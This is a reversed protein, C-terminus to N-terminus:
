LWVRKKRVSSNICYNRHYSICDKLLNHESMIILDSIKNGTLTEIVEFNGNIFIGCNDLLKHHNPCLCLINGIEDPGFHPSGLAQIHAAESISGLPSNLLQGCVQCKQGYLQKVSKVISSNRVLNSISRSYKQRNSQETPDESGFKFKLALIAEDQINWNERDLLRSVHERFDKDLNRKLINIATERAELDRSLSIYGFLLELETFCIEDGLVKEYKDVIRRIEDVRNPLREALAHIARSPIKYGLHLLRDLIEEFNAFKAVPFERAISIIEEDRINKNLLYFESLVNKLESYERNKILYRCKLSLIWTSTNSTSGMKKLCESYLTFDNRDVAFKLIIYHHREDIIEPKKLVQEYIINARDVNGTEVADKLGEYFDIASFFYEMDVYESFKETYFNEITSLSNFYRLISYDIKRNNFILYLEIFDLIEEQTNWLRKRIFGKGSFYDRFLGGQYTFSKSSKFNDRSQQILTSLEDIVFKKQLKKAKLGIELYIEIPYYKSKDVVKKESIVKLLLKWHEFTEDLNQIFHIIIKDLVRKPIQSERLLEIFKQPSEEDLAKIVQLKEQYEQPLGLEKIIEDNRLNSISIKEGPQGLAKQESTRRKFIDVGTEILRQLLRLKEDNSLGIVSNFILINQPGNFKNIGNKMFYKILDFFEDEGYRDFYNELLSLYINQSTESNIIQLLEYKYGFYALARIYEARHNYNIFNAIVLNNITIWERTKLTFYELFLQEKNKDKSYKHWLDNSKEFETNTYLELCLDIVEITNEASIDTSRDQNTRDILMAKIM